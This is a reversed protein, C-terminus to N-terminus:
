ILSHFGFSLEVKRAALGAWKESMVLGSLHRALPKAKPWVQPCNWSSAPVGDDKVETRRPSVERAEERLGTFRGLLQKTGFM